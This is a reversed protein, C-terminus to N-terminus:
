FNSRGKCKPRQITFIRDYRGINDGIPFSAANIDSNYLYEGNMILEYEYGTTSSTYTMPKTEIGTYYDAITGTYENSYFTNYEELWEIFGEEKNGSEIGQSIGFLTVEGDEIDVNLNTFIGTIGFMAHIYVEVREQCWQKFGEDNNIKTSVEKMTKEYAEQGEKNIQEQSPKPKRAAAAAEASSRAANAERNAISAAIAARIEIAKREALVVTAEFYELYKQNLDNNTQELALLDNSQTIGSSVTPTTPFGVGPMGVMSEDVILDMEVTVPKFDMIVKANTEPSTAVEYAFEPAMTAMHLALLFEYPRSYKTVWGDLNYYYVHQTETEELDEGKHIPRIADNVTVVLQRTTRDIEVTVGKPLAGDFVILGQTLSLAENEEGMRALIQGATLEPIKIDRSYQNFEGITTIIIEALTEKEIRKDTDLHGQINNQLREFFNEYQEEDIQAQWNGETLIQLVLEKSYRTAVDASMNGNAIMYTANDAEIYAQLIKSKISQVERQSAPVSEDVYTVEDVGTGDGYVEQNIFGYGELDYGKRVLDTAAAVLISDSVGISGQTFGDSTGTGSEFEARAGEVSGTIDSIYDEGATNGSIIDALKDRVMNPMNLFFVVVGTLIFAILLFIALILLIKGLIPVSLWKQIQSIMTAKKQAKKVNQSGKKIINQESSRQEEEM